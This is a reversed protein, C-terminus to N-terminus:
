YTVSNGTPVVSFWTNGRNFNIAKGSADLLQTPAKDSSKSWTGTIMDGDMFVLAKGSGILSYDTEPKGDPQTGYSVPVFEVVVNKVMIQKGTNKDTHAVGGLTRAYSDSAPDFQYKVAYSSSSFDISIATHAPTTMPADDKRAVPTFDPATNFKLKTLVNSIGDTKSYLNHPEVRDTTRIFYPSGQVLADVNKLGRPVIAALAPQSGGAHVVPANYELGWDLYYPRLSRIPGITTPTPEQFIALFRTIGGEALAEYVVGAESLGSQPRADPYLNEIMVGVIPQKSADSTVSLGTLPSPVTPAAVPTPASSSGGSSTAATAPTTSKHHQRYYLYYGIGAMAILLVVIGAIIMKKRRTPKNKFKDLKQKPSNESESVSIEGGDIIEDAM